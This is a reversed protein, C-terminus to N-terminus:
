NQNPTFGQKLNDEAKIESSVEILDIKKAFQYFEPFDTLAMVVYAAVSQTDLDTGHIKELHHPDSFIAQVVAHTCAMGAILKEHKALEPAIINMSEAVSALKKIQEKILQDELEDIKSNKYIGMCLSYLRNLILKDINESMEKLSINCASLPITTIDLRVYDYSGIVKSAKNFEDSVAKYESNKITNSMQGYLHPILYAAGDLFGRNGPRLSVALKEIDRGNKDTVFMFIHGPYPRLYKRGHQMVHKFLESKHKVPKNYRGKEGSALIFSRDVCLILSDAPKVQNMQQLLADNSEGPSRAVIFHKINPDEKFVHTTVITRNLETIAEVPKFFTTVNLATLRRLKYGM